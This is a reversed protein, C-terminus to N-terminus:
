KEGNRYTDIMQQISDIEKESLNQQKTFAAVFAPVSGEFNKEMMENLMAAQVQEKSILSRVMTKENVVVGRDSLRKMVTYTTTNQWGFKERCIEVLKRSKLPEHEWVVLCFKYECEFIKPTDKIEM